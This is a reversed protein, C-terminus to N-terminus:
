RGIRDEWGPIEWPLTGFRRRYADLYGTRSTEKNTGAAPQAASRLDYYAAEIGQADLRRGGGAVVAGLDRSHVWSCKGGSGYCYRIEDGTAQM